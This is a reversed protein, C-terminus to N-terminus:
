PSEDHLALRFLVQRVKKRSISLRAAVRSVKRDEQEWVRPIILDAFDQELQRFKKRGVHGNSWELVTANVGANELLRANLKQLDEWVPDGEPESYFGADFYKKAQSLAERADNRSNFFDNALTLGYWIYVHALLRQNHTRTALEIADRAYDHAAQAHSGPDSLDDVGEEVRANEIMCQLTRSQAMTVYDQMRASLAFAKAAEEAADDWQGRDLALYGRNLHVTARGRDNQTREYIQSARGLNCVADEHLQRLKDHLSQRAAAVAPDPATQHRRAADSDIKRRFQDAVLRQAQATNMLAGALNQHDADRKQFQEIARRFYGVARAYRGQRRLIQARTSQINGLTVYDDTDALVDEAEELAQVAETRKDKLFLLWSEQVRIVAAILQEGRGLALERAKVAYALAIDNEGKCQHCGAKSHHALVQHEWDGIDASLALVTDFHGIAVDVAGMSTAAMGEAMRIHIYESLPLRFRADKDYEGLLGMLLEPNRGDFGLEVWQALLGLFPASNRGRPDFSDILHACRELTRLGRGIRRTLIDEKLCALLEDSIDGATSLLRPGDTLVDSGQATVLGRSEAWRPLAETNRRHMKGLPPVLMPNMLKGIEM